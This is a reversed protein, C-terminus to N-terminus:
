GAAELVRQYRGLDCRVATKPLPGSALLTGESSPTGLLPQGTNELLGRVFGHSYTTYEHALAFARELSPLDYITALEMIGRLHENPNLKHQAVLGDLFGAQEPFRELFQEALVVYTRATTRRLPAYHETRMVIAGKTPSLAHEVLVERRADLILLHSGRSPLLWVLKGAQTAPVSYRSGQYSVMADWSVKRSLALTGVFRQEPLPTLHPIEAAFRDIPREQTTTHV